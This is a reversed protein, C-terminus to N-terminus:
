GWTKCRTWRSGKCGCTKCPIVQLRVVVLKVWPESAVKRVLEGKCGALTWGKCIFSKRVLNEKLVSLTVCKLVIFARLVLLSKVVFLVLYTSSFNVWHTLHEKEKRPLKSHKFINKTERELKEWSYELYNNAEYIFTLKKIYDEFMRVRPLHALRKFIATKGMNRNAWNISWWHMAPNVQKIESFYDQCRQESM